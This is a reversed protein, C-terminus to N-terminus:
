AEIHILLEFAKRLSEFPEFEGRNISQTHRGVKSEAQICLPRRLLMSVGCDELTWIKSVGLRQQRASVSTSNQAMSLHLPFPICAIIDQDSEQARLCRSLLSVNCIGWAVTCEENTAAGQNAQCEIGLLGILLHTGLTRQAM